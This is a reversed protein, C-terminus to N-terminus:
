DPSPSQEEGASEYQALQRMASEVARKDKFYQDRLAAEDVGRGKSVVAKWQRLTEERSNKAERIGALLRSREGRMYVKWAGCAFAVLLTFILLSRISFRFSTRTPVPIKITLQVFRM